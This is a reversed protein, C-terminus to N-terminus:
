AQEEESASSDSPESTTRAEEAAGVEAVHKCSKRFRFGPCDCVLGNATQRITYKVGPKSASAVQVTATIMM